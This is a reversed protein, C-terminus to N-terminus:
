LAMPFTHEILMVPKFIIRKAAFAPDISITAFTMSTSSAAVNLRLYSATVARSQVGTCLYDVPFMQNLEPVKFRFQDLAGGIPVGGGDYQILSLAFAPGHTSDDPNDIYVLGDAMNCFLGVELIRPQDNPNFQGLATLNGSTAPFLFPTAMDTNLLVLDAPPTAKVSLTDAYFPESSFTERISNYKNRSM